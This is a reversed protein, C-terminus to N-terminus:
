SCHKPTHGRLPSNVLLTVQWLDKIGTGDDRADQVQLEAKFKPDASIKQASWFLRMPEERVILDQLGGM